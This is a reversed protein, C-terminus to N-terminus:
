VCCVMCVYFKLNAVLSKQASAVQSGVRTRIQRDNSQQSRMHRSWVQIHV